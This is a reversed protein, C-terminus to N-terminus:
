VYPTGQIQVTKRALVKLKTGGNWCLPFRMKPVRKWTTVGRVLRVEEEPWWPLRARRLYCARADKAAQFHPSTCTWEEWRGYRFQRSQVFYNIETM